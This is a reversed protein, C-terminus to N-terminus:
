DPFLINSFVILDHKHENLFTHLWDVPNELMLRYYRCQTYLLVNKFHKITMLHVVYPYFPEHL